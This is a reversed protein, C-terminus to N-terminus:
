MPAEGDAQPEVDPRDIKRNRNGRLKGSMLRGHVARLLPDDWALTIAAIRRARIDPDAWARKAAESRSYGSRSTM